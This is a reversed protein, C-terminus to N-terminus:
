KPRGNRRADYILALMLKNLQEADLWDVRAIQFMHQAMSHAYSWPRGASALQAEVKAILSARYDGPRPRRGHKQAPTQVFGLRRMERLALDLEALTLQTSSRKGRAIRALMARYDADDMQLKRKAVQLKVIMPKRPDTM